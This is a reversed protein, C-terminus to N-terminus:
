AIFEEAIIKELGIRAVPKALAKPDEREAYPPQQASCDALM